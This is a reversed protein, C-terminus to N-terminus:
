RLATNCYRLNKNCGTTSEEDIQNNRITGSHTYFKGLSTMLKGKKVFHLTVMSRETPGFMNRLHATVIATLLILLKGHSHSTNKATTIHRVSQFKFVIAM